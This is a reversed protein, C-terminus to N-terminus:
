RIPQNPCACTVAVPQNGPLGRGVPFVRRQNVRGDFGDSEDQPLFAEWEGLDLGQVDHYSKIVLEWAFYCSYCFAFNSQSKAIQKYKKADLFNSNHSKRSFFIALNIGGLNKKKEKRLQRSPDSGTRPPILRGWIMRKEYSNRYSFTAVKEM